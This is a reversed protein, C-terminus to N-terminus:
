FGIDIDFRIRSNTEKFSGYPVLQEIFFARSSLVIKDALAYGIMVEMGKFNTLRGDPSGISSYDWRAWDNQALFDVAAFQELHTYTIKVKYNGKAKTSGYSLGVILGKKQNKFNSSISDNSEYNQFNQYIDIEGKILPKNFITVQTGLHGIAYDMLYTHTDDPTNPTNKFKYISPFLELRNQFFSSYVQFGEFYNDSSFTTGNSSIIFHGATLKIQNLSNSEIELTKSLSVGEPYVNDSWFLENQKKFPFTNKGFWVSFGNIGVQGYIKEFGIPLTGAEGFGEGLTLQPDQQKNPNGTRIRFGLSWHNNYQYHAGFRFRYRLRTRDERYTGDPKRSNWDPEIRFRFDGTFSLKQLSDLNQAVCTTSFGFITLLFTLYFIIRKM